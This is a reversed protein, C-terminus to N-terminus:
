SRVTFTPLLLGQAETLEGALLGVIRQPTNQNLSYSQKM